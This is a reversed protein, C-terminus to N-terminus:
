KLAKLLKQFEPDKFSENTIEDIREKSIGASKSDDITVFWDKSSNPKCENKETSINHKNNKTSM